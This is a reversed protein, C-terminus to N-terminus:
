SAPSSVRRGAHRDHRQQKTLDLTGLRENATTEDVGDPRVTSM